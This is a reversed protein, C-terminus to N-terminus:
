ESFIILMNLDHFTLHSVYAFEHVIEAQFGRLSFNEHYVNTYM